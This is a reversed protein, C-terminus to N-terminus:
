LCTCKHSNDHKQQQFSLCVTGESLESHLWTKPRTANIVQATNPFTQLNLSHSTKTQQDSIFEWTVMYSKVWHYFCRVWVKTAGISRKALFHTLMEFVVSGCCECLCQLLLLGSWSMFDLYPTWKINFLRWSSHTTDESWVNCKLVQLSMMVVWM